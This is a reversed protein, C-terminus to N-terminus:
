CATASKSVDVRDVLSYETHIRVLKIVAFMLQHVYAFFRDIM